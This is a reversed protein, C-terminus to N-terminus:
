CARFVMIGYCINASVMAERPGGWSYPIDRMGINGLAMNMVKNFLLRESTRSQMKRYRLYHNRMHFGDVVSIAACTGGRLYLYEDRLNAPWLWSMKLLGDNGEKM